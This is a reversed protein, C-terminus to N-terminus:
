FEQAKRAEEEYRAQERLFEEEEEAEKTKRANSRNYKADLKKFMEAYNGKYKKMLKDVDRMKNPNHKKYFKTLRTRPDDALGIKIGWDSNAVYDCVFIVGTLVVPGFMVFMLILPLIKIGGKKSARRQQAQPDDEEDERKLGKLKGLRPGASSM